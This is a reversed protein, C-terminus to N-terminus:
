TTTTSDPACVVSTAGQILDLWAVLRGRAGSRPDWVHTAVCDGERSGAANTNGEITTVAGGPSVAQVIGCHGLGQGHDLVFVDGPAPLPARWEPPTLDVLRLSGGTRPCPNLVGALEAAEQFVGYVFAACWAQGPSLKVAALWRDIDPGSNRGQEHVGIYKLATALM